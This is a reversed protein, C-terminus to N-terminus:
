RSKLRYFTNGTPAVNTVNYWAGVAAPVNSVSSWDNAGSLMTVSELNFDGYFSPWSVVVGPPISTASLLPRGLEFAGVDSGDGGSANPISPFDFPRPAGRQDTTLGFSNGKDIAPSNPSPAMTPTPGGNNRLPGLLPNVNLLDSSVFGSGGQTNGILNHGRSTLM